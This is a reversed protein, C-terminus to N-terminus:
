VVIVGDVLRDDRGAPARCLVLFFFVVALMGLCGGSSGKNAPGPKTAAGSGGASGSPPLTVPRMTKPKPSPPPASEKWMKLGEEPGNFRHVMGPTFWDPPSDVDQLVITMDGSAELTISEYGKFVLELGEPLSESEALGSRSRYSGGEFSGEIIEQSVEVPVNTDEGNPHTKLPHPAETSHSMHVHLSGDEDFWIVGSEFVVPLAGAPYDSM